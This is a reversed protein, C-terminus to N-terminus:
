IAFARHETGFAAFARIARGRVLVVISDRRRVVGDDDITGRLRDTTALRLGPIAVGDFYGVLSSEATALNM